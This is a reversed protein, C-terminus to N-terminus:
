LQVLEAKARSRTSFICSYGNFEEAQRLRPALVEGRANFYQALGPKIAKGEQLRQQAEVIEERLADRQEVQQRPNFCLYLTGRVPKLRHPRATLYFTTQRLRVRDRLPLRQAQPLWRRWFKKLPESLPVGAITEWGLAKIEAVNRGSTIGRDYIMTGALLRFRAFRSILDRLTRSDAINGDFTKHFVPIGEDQTVALGIQILPRGKIGDKDHGLKGLPCKKGYLYTNTVDYIVGSNRLRYHKKISQFITRQLAESDIKELFDMGQLLREETVQELDLLFNLDTRAFWNPMHNVSKYNWCHAYVMSLIERACPGLHEPLGIEEALHHLVMLPGYIKVEQVEVDSLSSSLITRGDAQKGVYRIFRQVM